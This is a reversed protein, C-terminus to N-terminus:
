KHHPTSTGFTMSVGGRSNIGTVPWDGYVWFEGFSNEFDTVTPNKVTVLQGELSEWFDLGFLTPQLTANVIDVRSQNNPVSLYGDPGKDLSTFSQTPPSRKQGLVLPTVTNNHSLVTINTPSELETATLDDPDSSSRFEAVKGSLVIMDGVNVEALITKSTTFVQLGNSVRVDSVPPGAIYFGETGQLVGHAQPSACFRLM